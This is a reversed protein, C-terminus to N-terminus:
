QADGPVLGKGSPHRAITALIEREDRFTALFSFFEDLSGRFALILHRDPQVSM